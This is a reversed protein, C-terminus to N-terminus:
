GPPLAMCVRVRSYIYGDNHFCGQEEESSDNKGSAESGAGGLILSRWRWHHVHAAAGVFLIVKPAQTFGLGKKTGPNWAPFVARPRFLDNFCEIKM